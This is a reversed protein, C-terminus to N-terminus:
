PAHNATSAAVEALVMINDPPTRPAVSCASSLIYAGGPGALALREAAAARVDEPTGRLLTGVPDLNGKLFVRKGLRELATALDVTGLPPPDLTDIGHLGTAEMLDLRDGIAGCTHVYIPLGPHSTGVGRIIRSLFPAEFTRYHERSILGAGAYASSILLADCGADAYLRGLETAGEALRDLCATVRGPDLVLAMLGPTHDVLEMFQSLPSFIEAHVSVLNDTLERVRRLTRAQWPPFFERRGPRAPTEAFGLRTPWTIGAMDHPEVYDLHDPDVAELPPFFREDEAIYAHPLDDEPVVTFIGNRWHIRRATPDSPDASIRDIHRRWDPDRGPLNVLIGDFRYRRQMTVLAEAFADSDHWLEVPDVGSRLFYHGIALQCMVPTRDPVRRAMAAAMRERPTM